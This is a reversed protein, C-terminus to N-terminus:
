TSVVGNVLYQWTIPGAIEDIVIHVGAQYNKLDAATDHTFIGDVPLNYGRLANLNQQLARVADGSSGAQVTIILRPWTQPGVVGDVQLGNDAQFRRVAAATAPGFIGDAGTPGVSYGRKLLFYQIDLVRYKVVSGQSVLPWSVPAQNISSPLVQATLAVPTAPAANAVGASMSAACAATLAAAVGLAAKRSFSSM